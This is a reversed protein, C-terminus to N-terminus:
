EPRSAEDAGAAELLVRVFGAADAQVNADPGGLFEAVRVAGVLDARSFDRELIAIADKVAPDDGFEAIRKGIEAAGIRHHWIVYYLDYADKPKGRKDFALAKLVTFAAPGCV